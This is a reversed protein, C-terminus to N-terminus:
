QHAVSSEASGTKDLHRLQLSSLSSSDIGSKHVSAIFILIASFSLMAISKWYIDDVQVCGLRKRSPPFQSYAARANGWSERRAGLKTCIALLRSELFTNLPMVSRFTLANGLTHLKTISRRIPSYIDLATHWVMQYQVIPVFVLDPSINECNTVAATTYWMYQKAGVEWILLCSVM